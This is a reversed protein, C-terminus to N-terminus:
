KSVSTVRPTQITSSQTHRLDTQKNIVDVAGNETKVQPDPQPQLVSSNDSHRLAPKIVGPDSIM